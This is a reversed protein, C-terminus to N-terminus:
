GLEEEVKEGCARLREDMDPIMADIRAVTEEDPNMNTEALRDRDEQDLPSVVELVCVAVADAYGEPYDPRGYEEAAMARWMQSLADNATQSLAPQVTSPLALTLVVALSFKIM